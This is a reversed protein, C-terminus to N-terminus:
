KRTKKGTSYNLARRVRALLRQFNFPKAVFDFFGMDLLQAEEEPYDRTSMAIVPIKATLSNSQLTGFVMKGNMSQLTTELLILQPQGALVKKLAEAGTVAQIVRYGEKELRVALTRRYLDHDDVVLITSGEQTGPLPEHLYFRKIAQTIESPIALFPVVNLGTRFALDDLTSFDLPNSTALYLTNNKIGLPFVMKALATSSDIVELASEPVPPRNIEEVRKLNFQRALIRLIDKECIVGLEEFIQGLPQKSVKQRALAKDLDEQNIVGMELLIEGFKKRKQM